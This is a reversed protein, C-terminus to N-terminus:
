PVATISRSVVTSSEEAVLLVSGGSVFTYVFNAVGVSRRSSNSAEWDVTGHVSCLKTEESCAVTVTDPRLIYNRTPWRAMFRQKDAIVDSRSMRKGYYVVEDPYFQALRDRNEGELGSLNFAAVLLAFRNTVHPKVVEALYGDNSGDGPPRGGRPHGRCTGDYTGDPRIDFGPERCAKQWEESEYMDVPSKPNKPEVTPPPVPAPPAHDGARIEVIRYTWAPSKAAPMNEFHLLCSHFARAQGPPVVIKANWTHSDCLGVTEQGIIPGNGDRVLIEFKLTDLIRDPSNNTVTGDLTWGQHRGDYSRVENSTVETLTIQEPKIATLAEQEAQQAAARRDAEAQAHQAREQAQEREYVDRRAQKQSNPDSTAWSFILFCIGIFIFVTVRFSSSVVLLWIVGIVVALAVLLSM